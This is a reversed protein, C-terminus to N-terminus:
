WVVHVDLCCNRGKEAINLMGLLSGQSITPGMSIMAAETAHLAEYM